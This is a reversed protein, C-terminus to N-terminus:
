QAPVEFANLVSFVTQHCGTLVIIDVIGKDGFTDYAAQFYFHYLTLGTSIQCCVPQLQRFGV